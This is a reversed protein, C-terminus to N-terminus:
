PELIVKISNKIDMCAEFAEAFNELKFCHTVIGTTNLKGSSIGDIVPPFCNPSLSVGYIDLEKSDGIISWNCTVPENFLSFEIFRGNKCVAELGQIVSSPHGTAEIYVDCGYGDTMELIEKVADTKDPNITIDAGFEKARRLREDFLDLAILKAANKLKAATVMGLGLPGCGSIVLYDDKTIKARDVAHYACSYPEILVADKLPMDKPIKYIRATEPMLAYEAFGGNLYNKFGFVDHKKCLSYQGKMCYRCKGCPAIQEVAVRDGIQLNRKKSSQEDIEAVTGIFEHGGIAPPELYPVTTKSGWFVEGGKYAKIDGACIGCGEIKLLVEGTKARPVPVQEYRYDYPGYTIVAYMLKPIECM